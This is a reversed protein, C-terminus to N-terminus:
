RAKAAKERAERIEQENRREKNLYSSGAVIAHFKSWDHKVCDIMTMVGSPKLYSTDPLKHNTLPYNTLERKSGVPLM